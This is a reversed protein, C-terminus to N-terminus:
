EVWRLCPGGTALGMSCCALWWRRMRSRVGGAVGGVEFL